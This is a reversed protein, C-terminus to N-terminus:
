YTYKKSPRKKSPRKKSPRKKTPRKKTPRKKTHRKNKRSKGGGSDNYEDEDSYYNFNSSDDDDDDYDNNPNIAFTEKLNFDMGFYILHNNNLENFTFKINKRINNVWESYKKVSIVDNYQIDFSCKDTQTETCLNHQISFFNPKISINSWFNSSYCSCFIFCRGYENNLKNFENGTITFSGNPNDYTKYDCTLITNGNPGANGHADIYIYCNNSIGDIYNKFMSFININYAFTIQQNRTSKELIMDKYNNILESNNYTFLFHINKDYNIKNMILDVNKSLTADLEDPNSFGILFVLDTNFIFENTAM